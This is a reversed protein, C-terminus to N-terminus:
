FIVARLESEAQTFFHRARGYNREELSAVANRLPEVVPKLYRDESKELEELIFRPKNANVFLELHVIKVLAEQKKGEKIYKRLVRFHGALFDWKGRERKAPKIGADMLAVQKAAGLQEREPVRFLEAQGEAFDSIEQWDPKRKRLMERIKGLAELKRKDMEIYDVIKRTADSFRTLQGYLWVDRTERLACERMKNHEAIYSIQRTRWPGLRERMSTFVACAAMVKLARKGGELEKAEGLMEITRDLKEKALTKKVAVFKMALHMGDFMRLVAILDDLDQNSAKGNREAAIVNHQDLVRLLKESQEMEMEYGKRIHVMARCARLIHTQFPRRTRPLMGCKVLKEVGVDTAHRIRERDEVKFNLGVYWQRQVIGFADLTKSDTRKGNEDRGPATRGSLRAIKAHTNHALRFSEERTRKREARLSNQVEAVTKKKLRKGGRKRGPDM